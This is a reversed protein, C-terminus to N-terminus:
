EKLSDSDKINASIYKQFVCTSFYEWWAHLVQIDSSNSSIWRIYVQILNLRTDKQPLVLNFKHSWLHMECEDTFFCSWVLLKNWLLKLSRQIHSSNFITGLKAMDHKLDARWRDSLKYGYHKGSYSKTHITVPLLTVHTFTFLHACNSLARTLFAM